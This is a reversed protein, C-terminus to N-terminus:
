AARSVFEFQKGAAAVTRVHKVRQDPVRAKHARVVPGPGLRKVSEM